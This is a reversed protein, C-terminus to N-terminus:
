ICEVEVMAAASRQEPGDIRKMSLFAGFGDGRAIRPVIEAEWIAVGEKSEVPCSV